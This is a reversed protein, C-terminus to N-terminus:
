DAAIKQCNILLLLKNQTHSLCYEGLALVSPGKHKGCIPIVLEGNSRFCPLKGKKTTIVWNNEQIINILPQININVTEDPFYKENEYINNLFQPYCSSDM